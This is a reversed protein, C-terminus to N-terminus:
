LADWLMGESPNARQTVCQLWSTIAIPENTAISTKLVKPDLCNVPAVGCTVIPIATELRAHFPVALISSANLAILIM